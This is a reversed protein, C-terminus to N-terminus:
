TDQGENEHQEKDRQVIRKHAMGLVQQACDLAEKSASGTRVQGVLQVFINILITLTIM